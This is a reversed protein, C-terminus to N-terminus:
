LLIQIETSRACKSVLLMKVRIFMHKLIEFIRRRRNKLRKFLLDMNIM